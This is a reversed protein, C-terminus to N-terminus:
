SEGQAMKSAAYKSAIDDSSLHIYVDASSASSQGLREAIMPASWGDKALATGHTHRLSHPKLSIGTRRGLGTVIQLANAYGMARGRDRERLNVFVYDSDIKLALQEETLSDAYHRFFRPPLSVFFESRQKSLAGNANTERRVVKVRGRAIDVDEHRLGLAQSIRLGGDYMASLLTRDRATTAAATLRSFDDEFDIIQPPKPKPGRVRLPHSAKKADGRNQGRNALHSLFGHRSRSPSVHDGHLRPDAPGRGEFRWFTLFSYIAAMTAKVTAASRPKPTRYEGVRRLTPLTGDRLDIAFACFTEFDIVEWRLARTDLWRFFLALHNAYAKVTNSSAHAARLYLNLFSDVDEIPRGDADVVTVGKTGDPQLVATARVNSVTMM